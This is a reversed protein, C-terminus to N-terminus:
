YQSDIDLITLTLRASSIRMISRLILYDKL